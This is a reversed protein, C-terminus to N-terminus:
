KLIINGEGNLDELNDREKLDGWYFGAHMERIVWVYWM